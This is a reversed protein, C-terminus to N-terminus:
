VHRLLRPAPIHQAFTLSVHRQHTRRCPQFQLPSARGHDVCKPALLEPPPVRTPRLTTPKPRFPLMIPRNRTCHSVSVTSASSLVSPASAQGQPQRQAQAARPERSVSHISPARCGAATHGPSPRAESRPNKILRCALNAIALQRTRRPGAHPAAHHCNGIPLDSPWSSPAATTPAQSIALRRLARWSGEPHQRERQRPRPHHSLPEEALSETAVLLTPCRLM